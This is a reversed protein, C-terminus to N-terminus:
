MYHPHIYGAIYVWAVMTCPLKLTVDLQSRHWSIFWVFLNRFSVFIQAPKEWVSRVYMYM